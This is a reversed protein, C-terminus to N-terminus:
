CVSELIKGYNSTTSVVVKGEHEESPLYYVKFDNGTVTYNCVIYLFVNKGITHQLDYVHTCLSRLEADSLTKNVSYFFDTSDFSLTVTYTSGIRVTTSIVSYIIKRECNRLNVPVEM